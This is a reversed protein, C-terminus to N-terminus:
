DEDTKFFDNIIDPNAIDIKKRSKRVEEEDKKDEPGANDEEGPDESRKEDDDLKELMEDTLAALDKLDNEELSSERGGKRAHKYVVEESGNGSSDRDDDPQEERISTEQERSGSNQKKSENEAAELTDLLKRDGVSAMKQKFDDAFRSIQQKFETYDKRLSTIGSELSVKEDRLRRLEQEEEIKKRGMMEEAEIKAKQKIDEAMRHASILAEQIVKKMKSSENDGEYKISDIREEMERIKKQMGEFEMALLDLFKDVEEPKYGKFVIHFEKKHISESSLSM